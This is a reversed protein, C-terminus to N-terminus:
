PEDTYRMRREWANKDEGAIVFPSVFRMDVENVQCALHMKM